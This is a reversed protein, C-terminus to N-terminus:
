TEDPRKPNIQRLVQRHFEAKEPQGDMRYLRCLYRHAMTNGPQMSLGTEFALIARKAFRLKSLIAGLQFHGAPLFHQLSVADLAAKVADLDKNQRVLSTALGVCASPNEPESGLLRRFLTEAERWRRQNLLVRAIQEQLRLDDPAKQEADRLRGLADDLRGELTLLNAFMRDSNECSGLCAEMAELQQRAEPLRGAFLLVQALKLQFRRHRPNGTALRRAEIEAERHCGGMTLSCVRNFSLENTATKILKETNTDLPAMYGLAVLHEFMAQEEERGPPKTDLTGDVSPHETQDWSPIRAIQGPSEFANVLVKGDMDQGVPLGFLHLITPTIDLVSSGYIREDKRIESGALALIGFPRHWQSMTELQKAAVGPRQVGSEFGHDSVLVVTTHPGALHILRSLMMDHFRYAAPMVNGYTAVEDETVGALRPPHFPMFHHGFDDLARFYVALCDWPEHELIWTAVSHVSTTQALIRAIATLREAVVPDSQDLEVARPIFPLLQNGEIETPHVRFGALDKEMSAPVVSRDPLPWNDRDPSHVLAFRDTVCVGRIGEGPHSAYWGIVHTKLGAESLINWLAKTQRTTSRVNRVGDGLPDPEVFGLVGHKHPFKGTVISTWILPSLIPEISALNGMVGREVLDTLTPLLGRDMLPSILRWDASDWGVLLVKRKAALPFGESLLCSLVAVM